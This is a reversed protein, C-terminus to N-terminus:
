GRYGYGVILHEEPLPETFELVAQGSPIGCDRCIQNGAAGGCFGVAPSLRVDCAEAFQECAPRVDDAGGLLQIRRAM